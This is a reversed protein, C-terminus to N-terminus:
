TVTMTRPSTPATFAAVSAPAAAGRAAHALEYRDVDNWPRVALDFPNQWSAAGQLRRDLHIGAGGSRGRGESGDRLRPRESSARFLRPELQGLEALLADVGDDVGHGCGGRQLRFRKRPKGNFFGTIADDGVLNLLVQKEESFTYAKM